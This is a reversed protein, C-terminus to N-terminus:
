ILRHLVISGLAPGNRAGPTNNSCVQYLDELHHSIGFILADPRTTGSMLIEKVNESYLGLYFM